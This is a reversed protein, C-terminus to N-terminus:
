VRTPEIEEAGPDRRRVFGRLSTLATALLFLLTRPQGVDGSLSELWLSNALWLTSWLILVLHSIRQLARGHVIGIAGRRGRASALGQSILLAALVVLMELVVLAVGAAGHYSLGIASHLRETGRFGMIRATTSPDVFVAGGYRGVVFLTWLVWSGVVGDLVFRIRRSMGETIGEGGEGDGANERTEGYELPAARHLADAWPSHAYGSASGFADNRLRDQAHILKKLNGM